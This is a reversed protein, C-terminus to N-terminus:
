EENIMREKVKSAYAPFAGRPVQVPALFLAFGRVSEGIVRRDMEYCVRVM